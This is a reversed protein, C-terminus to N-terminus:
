YDKQPQRNFVNQIGTKLPKAVYEQLLLKVLVVVPFVVFMLISCVLMFTLVAVAILPYIVFDEIFKSM